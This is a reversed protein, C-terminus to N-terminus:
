RGGVVERPCAQVHEHQLLAGKGPSLDAAVPQSGPGHLLEHAHADGQLGGVAPERVLPDPDDAAPGPDLEVPPATWSGRIRGPGCWARSRRSRRGRRGAPLPGPQGLADGHGPGTRSSAVPRIVPTVTRPSPRPRAPPSPVAARSPSPPASRAAAGATRGVSATGPFLAGVPGPQHHRRVCSTGSDSAMPGACAPVVPRQPHRDPGVVGAGPMVVVVQLGPELQPVAVRQQGAVPPYEPDAVAGAVHAQAQRLV